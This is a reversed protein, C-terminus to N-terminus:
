IVTVRAIRSHPVDHALCVFATAKATRHLYAHRSLRRCGTVTMTFRTSAPRSCGDIREAEPFGLCDLHRATLGVDANVVLRLSAVALEALRAATVQEGFM